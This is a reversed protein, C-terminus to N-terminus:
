ITIQKKRCKVLKCWEDDIKAWFGAGESTYEWPFAHNIWRKPMYNKIISDPENYDRLCNDRWQDYWEQQKFLEKM